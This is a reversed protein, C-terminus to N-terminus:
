NARQNGCSIDIGRQFTEGLEAGGSGGLEKKAGSIGAAAGAHEVGGSRQVAPCALSRAARRGGVLSRDAKRPRELLCTLRTLGELRVAFELERESLCGGELDGFISGTAQRRLQIAAFREGLAVELRDDIPEHSDRCKPSRHIHLGFPQLAERSGRAALCDFRCHHLMEVRQARVIVCSRPRM